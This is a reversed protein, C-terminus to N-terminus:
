IQNLINLTGCLCLIGNCTLLLSIVVLNHSFLFTIKQIITSGFMNELAASLRIAFTSLLSMLRSISMSLKARHQLFVSGQACGQPQLQHTCLRVWSCPLPQFWILCEWPLAPTGGESLFRASALHACPNQPQLTRASLGGCLCRSPGGTYPFNFHAEKLPFPAPTHTM